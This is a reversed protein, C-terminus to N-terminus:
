LNREPQERPVAVLRSGYASDGCLKAYGFTRKIFMVFAFALYEVVDDLSHPLPVRFM